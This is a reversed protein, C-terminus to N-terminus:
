DALHTCRRLSANFHDTPKCRLHHLAGDEVRAGLQRGSQRRGSCKSHSTATSAAATPFLLASLDIYADVGRHVRKGGAMGGSKGESEHRVAMRQKATSEISM